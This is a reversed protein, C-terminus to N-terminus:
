IVNSLKFLFAFFLRTIIKLYNLGLTKKTLIFFYGRLFFGSRMVM